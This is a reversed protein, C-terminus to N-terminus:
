VLPNSKCVMILNGDIGRQTIDYVGTMSICKKCGRSERLARQGGSGYQEGRSIDKRAMLDDTDLVMHVVMHELKQATPIFAERVCKAVVPNDLVTKQWRFVVFDVCMVKGTAESLKALYRCAIYACMSLFVSFSRDTYIDNELRMAVKQLCEDVANTFLVPTNGNVGVKVHHMGERYLDMYRNPCFKPTEDSVLLENFLDGYWIDAIETTLSPDGPRNPSFGLM